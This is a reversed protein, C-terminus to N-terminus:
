QVRGALKGTGHCVVCRAVEGAHTKWCATCGCCGEGGCHWCIEKALCRCHEACLWCRRCVPGNCGCDARTPIIAEASEAILTKCGDWPRHIWRGPEIEYCTFACTAPRMSLVKLIEAKSERIRPILDTPIRSAPQFRLRDPGIAEVSIGLRQLTELIEIAAM